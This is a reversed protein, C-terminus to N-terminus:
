STAAVSPFCGGMTTVYEVRDFNNGGDTSMRFFIPTEGQGAQGVVYVNDGVAAVDPNIGVGINQDNSFSAGNDTSRAYRSQGFEEWVVHVATGSAAVAPNGGGAIEIPNGFNGGNNTTRIYQVIGNNDFVVHVNNGSTAIAPNHGSGLRITSGGIKKFYVGTPDAWVIYKNNGSTAISPIELTGSGMDRLNFITGFTTGENGSTKLHIQEDFRILVDVSQGSAAIDAIANSTPPSTVTSFLSFISTEFIGVNRKFLIQDGVTPPPFTGTWATYISHEEIQGPPGQEGQIGQPGAPGTAGTPGIPGQEGQEGQPGQPGTAGTAGAPGQPGTEGQPGRKNM